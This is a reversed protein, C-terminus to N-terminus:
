NIIFYIVILRTRSNPTVQYKWDDSSRSCCCTSYSLSSNNLNCSCILTLIAIYVCVTAVYILSTPLLQVKTLCILCQDPLIALSACIEMRFYYYNYKHKYINTPCNGPRGSWSRCGQLIYSDLKRISCFCCNQFVHYLLSVILVFSDTYLHYDLDM